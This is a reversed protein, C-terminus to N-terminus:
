NQENPILRNKLFILFSLIVFIVKTQTSGIIPWLITFLITAILVVKSLRPIMSRIKDIQFLYGFSLLSSLIMRKIFWNEKLEDEFWTLDMMVRMFFFSQYLFCQM